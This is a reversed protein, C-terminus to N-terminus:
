ASSKHPQQTHGNRQQDEVLALIGDPLPMPAWMRLIGCYSSPCDAAVAAAAALVADEGAADGGFITKWRDGNVGVYDNVAILQNAPVQTDYVFSPDLFDGSRM